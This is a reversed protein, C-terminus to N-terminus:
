RRQKLAELYAHYIYGRKERLMQEAKTYDMIEVFLNALEPTEKIKEAANEPIGDYVRNQIAFDPITPGVYMRRANQQREQKEKKRATSM